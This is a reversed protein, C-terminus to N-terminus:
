EPTWKPEDTAAVPELAVGTVTYPCALRTALPWTTTTTASDTTNVATDDDRLLPVAAAVLIAVTVASAITYRRRLRSSAAAKAQRLADEPVPVDGPADLNEFM